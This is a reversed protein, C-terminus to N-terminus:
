KGNQQHRTEYQKTRLQNSSITRQKQYCGCSNTNGSKLNSTKVEVSNGCECQCRMVRVAHSGYKFTHSFEIVTLRGFVEGGHLSDSRVKRPM